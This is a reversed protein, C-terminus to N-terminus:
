VFNPYLTIFYQKEGVGVCDQTPGVGTPDDPQSISHKKGTTMRPVNLANVRQAVPAVLTASHHYSDLHAHTLLEIITVKLTSLRRIMKVKELTM